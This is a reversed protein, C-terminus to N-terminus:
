EWRKLKETAELIKLHTRRHNMEPTLAFYLTGFIMHIIRSFNSFFLPPPRGFVVGITRHLLTPSKDRHKINTPSGDASECLLNARKDLM